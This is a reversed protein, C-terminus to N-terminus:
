RRLVGLGLVRFGLVRLSSPFLPPFFCKKHAARQSLFELGHEVESGLGKIFRAEFNRVQFSLAGRGLGTSRWPQDQPGRCPIGM